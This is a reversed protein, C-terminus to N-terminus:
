VVNGKNIICKIGFPFYLCDIAANSKAEKIADEESKAIVDYLASWTGKVTVQYTKM